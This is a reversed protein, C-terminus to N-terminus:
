INTLQTIEPSKELETEFLNFIEKMYDQQVHFDFDEKSHFSEYIYICQTTNELSEHLLYLYCGTEKLTIDRLEQLKSKLSVFSEKKPIIKVILSFM